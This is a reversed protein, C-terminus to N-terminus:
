QDNNDKSKKVCDENVDGDPKRKVGSSADDNQKDLNEKSGNNQHYNNQQAQSDSSTDVRLLERLAMTAYCSTPLSMTLLLAKYKGDSRTEFLTLTLYVDLPFLYSIKFVYM